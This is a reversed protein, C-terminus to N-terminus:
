KLNLIELTLVCRECSNELMAASRVVYFIRSITEMSVSYSMLEVNEEESLCSELRILDTELGVGRVITVVELV